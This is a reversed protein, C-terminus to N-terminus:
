ELEEPYIMVSIKMITECAATVHILDNIEKESRYKKNNKLKMVIM